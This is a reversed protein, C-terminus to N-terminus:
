GILAKYAPLRGHHVSLLTDFAEGSEIEDLTWQAWAMRQFVEQRVDETTPETPFGKHFNRAALATVITPACYFTPIGEILATTACNSSWVVLADAEQLDDLLPRQPQHRGPHERVTAKFRGHHRGEIKARVQQEFDYPSRMLQSGIGRQAAILVRGSEANPRLPKFDINLRDLRHRDGSFWRGSGNHGDLAIAYSKQGNGDYYGNETVLLAGGGRQAMEASQNSRGTLNWIVAVDQPNIPGTPQHQHVSFGLRAFGNIFAQRREGVHLPLHVYATPM